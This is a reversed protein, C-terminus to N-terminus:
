GGVYINGFDSIFLKANDYIVYGNSDFAFPLHGKSSEVIFIGDHLYTEPGLGKKHRFWWGNLDQHWGPEDYGDPISNNTYDIDKLKLIHTFNRESAKTKVTGYAQGRAEIIDNYGVIVGIHGPRWAAWGIYNSLDMGKKYSVKEVATEEYNYSGRLIGTFSSILGSCDVAYQGIWGNATRLYNATWTSPYQKALTSNKQATVIAMKYGYLYHTGVKSEVYEILDKYNKM